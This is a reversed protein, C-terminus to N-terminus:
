DLTFRVPESTAKGVRATLEYTGPAPEALDAPCGEQSRVRQWRATQADTAGPQLTVLREDTAEQCDRSSWIRDKGSVLLLEVDESLALDATCPTEGTNTAELTFRPAAEAGYSGADTSVAVQLQDAECRPADDAGATPGASPEPEAAPAEGAARAPDPASEPAAASGSDAAVPDARGGRTTLVVVLLVLAVVALLLVLRRRWYVRAPEPGVPHLLPTTVGRM